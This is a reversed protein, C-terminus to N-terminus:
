KDSLVGSKVLENRLTKGSKLRMNIERNCAPCFNGNNIYYAETGPLPNGCDAGVCRTKVNMPVGELFKADM